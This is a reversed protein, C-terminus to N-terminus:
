CTRMAIQMWMSFTLVNKCQTLQYVKKNLCKFLWFFFLLILGSLYEELSGNAMYEYILGIQNGENCYGYLTTLNKHHVTRLLIVQLILIKKTPYLNPSWNKAQTLNLIVEAEFQEYGQRSSPSLMKVAVETNDDLYGHYVKGFSGEGLITEFDNTIKTIEAYTFRRKKTEM